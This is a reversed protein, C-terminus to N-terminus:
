KVWNPAALNHIAYLNITNYQMHVLVKVVHHKSETKSKFAPLQAPLQQFFFGHIQLSILGYMYM